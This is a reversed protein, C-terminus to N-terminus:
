ADALRVLRECAAVYMRRANTTMANEVPPLGANKDRCQAALEAARRPRDAVLNFVAFDIESASKLAENANQDFWDCISEISTRANFYPRAKSFYVDRVDFVADNLKKGDTVNWRSGNHKAFESLRRAIGAPMYWASLNADDWVLANLKAVADFRLGITPVYRLADGAAGVSVSLRETADGAIRRDLIWWNTEPSRQCDFDRFAERIASIAVERSLTLTQAM